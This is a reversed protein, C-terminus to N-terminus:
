RRNGRTTQSGRSFSGSRDRDASTEDSADLVEILGQPEMLEIMGPSLELITGAVRYQWDRTLRCKKDIM